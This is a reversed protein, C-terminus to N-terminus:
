HLPLSAGWNVRTAIDRVRRGLVEGVADLSLKDDVDQRAREVLPRSADRDDFVARLLQAAHEEDPEAWHAHAPYPGADEELRVLRYRVPLGNNLDFFDANGSYPTAIVPKGLAMAEAITLGFGESRHLSVYADCSAILGRVDGRPLYEDLLRVDADGIAERLAALQEPAFDSQSTKLLLVAKEDPKFARRFARVLGLPNKREMYSLFNFMFLFVFEDDEFGFRERDPETSPDIEVPLPVRRVPVSAIESIADVCFSSPTWVEHLLDFAGRWAEPFTELEWLWLGINYRGAFVEAGLHEYVPAVQDANVVFLNIGHPFDSEQREYTVDDNRALVNLDISQLSVPIAARELAAALSRAAEGMGTEAQLYGVLNVGVSGIAEPVPVRYGGALPRAPGSVSVEPPRLRRRLVEYREPGLLRKASFRAKNGLPSHYIRKARGVARRRLGAPTWRSSSSDRHLANLFADDLKFEHRGFGELWACFEAFDRGAPDPFIRRLDPRGAWLRFLLRSLFPGEGTSRGATHPENLWAFFSGEGRRFPDGFRARRKGMESYIARAPGPIPAGGAFFGFAYPWPQATFFGAEILADSYSRYLEAADGLDSLIFRDQHKSVRELNGPQIGSFHFFILPEGNSKPGDDGLTITRGHLNWYATNYGPHRHIYVGDFLGPVLDCWKQDVFLGDEVRVRCRDYLRDQWWSLLQDCTEGGRLAIFGLNNSGAQLIAQEGPHCGDAIPTTLHPTLVVHNEATLRALEELSGFIRIDPDFYVINPLDYRKLLYALFFPKIATNLELLTYKFLFSEREPINDLDEAELLTFPEQAPDLYGDNRDALLVFFRGEPHREAFSRALVRAFAIYNKAVITCANLPTM